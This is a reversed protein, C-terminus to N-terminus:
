DVGVRSGSLFGVNRLIERSTLQDIKHLEDATLWRSLTIDKEVQPLFCDFSVFEDRNQEIITRLNNEDMQQHSYLISSIAGSGFAEVANLPIPLRKYINLNKVSLVVIPKDSLGNKNLLNRLRNYMIQTMEFSANDYIGGDYLSILNEDDQYFGLDNIIPFYQSIGVATGLSLIKEKQYLVRNIDITRPIKEDLLFPSAIVRQHSLMDYSNSLLLPNRVMDLDSEGSYYYNFPRYWYATSDTLNENQDRRVKQPNEHLLKELNYAEDYALEQNRDFRFPMKFWLLNNLSNRFLLQYMAPSVYNYSFLRETLNQFDFDPDQRQHEKQVMYQAAGTTSGSIASIAYIRNYFDLDAEHDLKYLIHTMTAAARSGGGQGTILYVPANAPQNKIKKLFMEDYDSLPLFARDLPKTIIGNKAIAHDLSRPRYLAIASGIMVFLIFGFYLLQGFEVLNKQSSKIKLLRMRSMVNEVFVLWIYFFFARISIAYFIYIVITISAAKSFWNSYLDKNLVMLGLVIDVLLVFVWLSGMLSRNRKQNDNLMELYRHIFWCVGLFLIFIIAHSYYAFWDEFRLAMTISYIGIFIMPLVFLGGFSVNLDNETFGRNYITTLLVFFHFFAFCFFMVLLGGFNSHELIDSYLQKAQPLLMIVFFGVTILISLLIGSLEFFRLVFHLLFRVLRQFLTSISDSELLNDFSLKPRYIPM